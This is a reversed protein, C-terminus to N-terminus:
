TSRRSGCCPGRRLVRKRARSARKREQQEAGDDVAEDDAPMEVIAAARPALQRALDALESPKAASSIRM